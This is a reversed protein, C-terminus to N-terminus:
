RAGWGPGAMQAEAGTRPLRAAQRLDDHLFNGTRYAELLTLVDSARGTRM